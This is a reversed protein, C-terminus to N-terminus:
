RDSELERASGTRMEVADHAQSDNRHAVRYQGLESGITRIQIESHGFEKVHAGLICHVSVYVRRVRLGQLPM